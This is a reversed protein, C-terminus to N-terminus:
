AGQMGQVREEEVAARYCRQLHQTVPGPSGTSIRSGDVAILPMIERLSGTLFAEDAALLDDLYVPAENVTLGEKTALEIIV